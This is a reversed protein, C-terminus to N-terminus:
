TGQKRKVILRLFEIKGDLFTDSFKATFKKVLNKGGNNYWDWKYYNDIFGEPYTLATTDFCIYEYNDWFEKYFAFTIPVAILGYYDIPLDNLKKVVIWKWNDAERHISPDYHKNFQTKSTLPTYENLPKINNYWVCCVSKNAGTFFLDYQKSMFVTKDKFIDQYMNVNIFAMWSCIVIFKKNYKKLTNYFRRFISFPPNTVVIDCQKLVDISEDCDFSGDDFFSMLQVTENTGDFDIRTGSCTKSYCTATLHKLNFEKFHTKFYIYFNSNVGDCNCYIYKNNFDEIFYKNLFSEIDKLQIYFEDNKARKARHLSLEGM